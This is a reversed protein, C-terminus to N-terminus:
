YKYNKTPKRFKVQSKSNNNETIGLELRATKRKCVIGEIMDIKIFQNFLTEFNNKFTKVRFINESFQYLYEKCSERTGYLKDLLSIRDEFTTGVLYESNFVLIDFIIFKHNFTNLNEDLKSKNMYEVNLVLWKGPECVSYMGLIESKEIRFNTLNQNHRNMVYVNKGNTFITCNSGNMKPQAVMMNSDWRSIDKPTCANKPRPPYIYSFGNYNM